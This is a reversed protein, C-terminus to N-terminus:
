PRDGAAEHSRLPVNVDILFGAGPLSVLAFTGGLGEVRERMGLLGLGHRIAGLDAGHGNDRIFLHLSPSPSGSALVIAVQTAGSHRLINTVSEQVVRYLAMAISEDLDEPVDRFAAVFETAPALTRWGTLGHELAGVLGLEDLAVPRLRSTMDRVVEYVHDTLQVVALAARHIEPQSNRSENRIVVAEIKIANLSQGLEDHLEHALLRRESEQAETARRSLDRFEAQKVELAHEIVLRHRLEVGMERWRRWAFWALGLSFTLLALPVEDMQLREYGRAISTIHENLETFVAIAFVAISALVIWLLDTAPKSAPPSVIANMTADLCRSATPSIAM